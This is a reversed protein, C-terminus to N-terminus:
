FPYFDNDERLIYELGIDRDVWWSIKYRWFGITKCVYPINYEEFYDVLRRMNSLRVKISHKKGRKPGRYQKKRKKKWTKQHCIPIDDWANPINKHNRKARVYKNQSNRRENTTRPNRYWKRWHKM